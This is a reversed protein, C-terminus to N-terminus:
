FYVDSNSEYKEVESMQEEKVVYTSITFVDKWM